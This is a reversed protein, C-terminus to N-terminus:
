GSYSSAAVRHRVLIGQGARDRNGTPPLLVAAECPDELEQTLRRGTRRPASGRTHATSPRGAAPAALDHLVVRPAALAALAVLAPWPFGLTRRGASM